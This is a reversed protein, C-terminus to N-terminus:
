VAIMLLTLGGQDRNDSGIQRLHFIYADGAQAGSLNAIFTFRTFQGAGLKINAQYSPPHGLIPNPLGPSSHDIVVANPFDPLVFKFSRPPTTGLRVSGHPTQLRPSVVKQVFRNPKLDVVARLTVDQSNVADPNVTAVQSSQTGLPVPPVVIASGGSPVLCLNHQAVHRDFPAFFNQASPTLSDPYCRAVLCVDRHHHPNSPDLGLPPNLVLSQTANAGEAPFPTGINQVNKSSANNDPIMALSPGAAWLEVTVSEAFPTTCGSGVAKRHLRVIATNSLGSPNSLSIDPSLWWTDTSNHAGGDGPIAEMFICSDAALGPDNPM